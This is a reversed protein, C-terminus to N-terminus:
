KTYLRNYIAVVYCLVVTTQKVCIMIIMSDYFNSFIM